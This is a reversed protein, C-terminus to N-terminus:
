TKPKVIEIKGDIDAPLDVLQPVKTGLGGDIMEVKVDGPKIAKLVSLPGKVTVTVKKGAADGKVPAPVMREGTKEGIRFIIDVVADLVRAKPNSLSVGVQRATFDADRKDLEIKDTSVFELTQMFSEPGRVRVKQPIVTAEGRLEYGDPVHGETSAKVPIDKEIVKELKILISKPRIESVTVGAPLALSVSEPTLEVVRDGIPIGTLDIYATLDNKRSLDDIQSKDGKLVIDVQKDPPSLFEADDAIRLTLPVSQFTATSLEGAVGFYLALTIVLAVVKMPWDDIFIKRGLRRLSITTHENENYHGSM